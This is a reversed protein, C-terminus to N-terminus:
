GLIRSWLMQDFANRRSYTLGTQLDKTGKNRVPEGGRQQKTMLRNKIQIPPNKPPCPFTSACSGVQMYEGHM